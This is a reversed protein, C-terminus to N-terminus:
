DSLSSHKKINYLDNRVEFREKGDQHPAVLVIKDESFDRLINQVSNGGTKPIHVFLFKHQISIM